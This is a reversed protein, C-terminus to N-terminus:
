LGRTGSFVVYLAAWIFYGVGVLWILMPVPRNQEKLIGAFEYTEEELEKESRKKFTFSSSRSWRALVIAATLVVGGAIIWFVGELHIWHYPPM